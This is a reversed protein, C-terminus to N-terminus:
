LCRLAVQTIVIPHVALLDKESHLWAVKYKGLHNVVCSFQVRDGVRVTHNSLSTQGFSPKLPTSSSSSSLASTFIYTRGICTRAYTSYLHTAGMLTATVIATHDKKKKVLLAIGVSSFGSWQM